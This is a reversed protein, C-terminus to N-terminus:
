GNLVDQINYFGAPKKIIWEAARLAGEAFARRSIASHSFEIVEHDSAFTVKHEGFIGGARSFSIGIKDKQRQGSYSNNIVLNKDSISNSITKALLLATGSPADKKKSHHREHIEIDYHNSYLYPSIDRLTKIILNIGISFNATLLIPSATSLKLIEEYDSEKFGTTGIVIPKHLKAGIRCLALSVEAESFDIVVDSAEVLTDLSPFELNEYNHKTKAYGGIFELNTSDRLLEIIAQGMKGSFGLVGVKIKNM